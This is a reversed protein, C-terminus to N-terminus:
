SDMFCRIRSKDNQTQCDSQQMMCHDLYFSPFFCCLLSHISNKMLIYSYTSKLSRFNNQTIGAHILGSSTARPMKCMGNQTSMVRSILKTPVPNMARKREVPKRQFHLLFLTSQFKTKKLKYLVISSTCFQTPEVRGLRHFPEKLAPWHDTYNWHQFLSFFTQTMTVYYSM